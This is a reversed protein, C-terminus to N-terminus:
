PGLFSTSYREPSITEGLFDHAIEYAIFNFSEAAKRLFSITLSFPQYRIRCDRQSILFIKGSINELKRGIMADEESIM